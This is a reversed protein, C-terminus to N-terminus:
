IERLQMITDLTAIKKLAPAISLTIKKNNQKTKHIPIGKDILRQIYDRISSQSLELKKSLIQYDISTFSQEELQYITSFVLMEQNTIQKFKLRIQKKLTDLNNLIESAETISQDVSKSSTEHLIPKKAMNLTNKQAIDTQRIDTQRDTSAGENGTSIALNSPKLGQIEMPVTSNHTSTVPHTSSIPNHTSNTQKSGYQTNKLNNQLNEQLNLQNIKLNNLQNNISNIFSNITQLEQKLDTVEYGLTYIDQKIREFAQKLKSNDGFM